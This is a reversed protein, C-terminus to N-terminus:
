WSSHDSCRWEGSLHMQSQKNQNKVMDRKTNKRGKKDHYYELNNLQTPLCQLCNISCASSVTNLPFFPFPVTFAACTSPFVLSCYLTLFPAFASMLLLILMLTRAIGEGKKGRRGEPSHLWQPRHSLQPLGAGQLCQGGGKPDLLHRLLPVLAIFRTYILTDWICIHLHYGPWLQLHTTMLTPLCQLQAM